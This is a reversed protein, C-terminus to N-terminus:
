ALGGSFAIAAVAAGRMALSWIGARDPDLRTAAVHVLATWATAIIIAIGLVALAAPGQGGLATGLAFAFAAQLPHLASAAFRGLRMPGAALPLARELAPAALEQGVLRFGSTFAIVLWLGFMALLPPLASADGPLGSAAYWAVAPTVWLLLRDLRYRRRLQRLDRLFHPRAPLPLVGAFGAGPLSRAVGDDRYPPPVDAEAFRPLIHHLHQDAVRRGTRWLLAVAVAAGIGIGAITTADNRVFAQRLALEAFIGGVAIVLLGLAPAYIVLAAEDAVVSGAMMKKLHSSGGLLSRGALLHLAMSLPIGVFWAVFPYAFAFGALATAGHDALALAYAISPLLLPLHVTFAMVVLEDFRRGGRLPLPALFRADPARFVLEFTTYCLILSQLIGFWFSTNSVEDPTPATTGALTHGLTLLGATVLGLVALLV